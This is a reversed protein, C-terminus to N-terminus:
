MPATGAVPGALPLRVVFTTGEGASSAASISGGHAEVIGKAVYLGLGLGGFHEKPVAREFLSFLSPLRDPEIGVGHDRITVEAQTEDGGLLVEIPEKAGFKIANDLLESIAREIRARDWTGVPPTKASVSLTIARGSRATTSRVCGEVISTLDCSQLTLAIGEGRTQLAELMREVLSGLRKVQHVITECRREEARDGSRRARRLSDDTLLQLSTLPTRLEHSALVLLDDRAQIAERAMSYLRANELASSLRQGVGEALDLDDAGYRRDVTCLQLAGFSRGAAALPIAMLSRVRLELLVARQAESVGYHEFASPQLDPVLLSQNQRMVLMAVVPGGRREMARAVDILLRRKEPDAHTAAILELAGDRNQVRVVAIDALKPVVVSIARSAIERVDLSQLTVRSVSDLFSARLAAAESQTHARAALASAVVQAAGMAFGEERETWRRPPGVHEHCLVGVLRGELCVPVDLMSSIGRAVCYGRLGRSRPDTSVDHMNLIRKQRLAAFYEPADHEFLAAGREFFHSSVVYGAECHISSSEESLSWFNVREVQLAEADFQVIHRISEGWNGMATRSLELLARATSGNLGPQGGQRGAM